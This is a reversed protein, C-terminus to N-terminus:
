REKMGRQISIEFVIARSISTEDEPSLSGAAAAEERRDHGEEPLLLGGERRRRTRRRRPERRAAAAVTATEEAASSTEAYVTGVAGMAVNVEVLLLLPVAALGDARSRRAM